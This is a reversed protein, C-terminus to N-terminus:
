KSGIQDARWKERGYLSQVERTITCVVETNEACMKRYIFLLLFVHITLANMKLWTQRLLSLSCAKLFKPAEIGEVNQTFTKFLFM